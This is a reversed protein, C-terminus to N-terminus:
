RTRAARQLCVIGVNSATLQPASGSPVAGPSAPQQGPGTVDYHKQDNQKAYTVFLDGDINAINFPAYCRGM